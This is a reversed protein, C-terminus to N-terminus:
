CSRTGVFIVSRDGSYLSTDHLDNPPPVTSTIAGGGQLDAAAEITLSENRAWAEEVEAHDEALLDFVRHTPEGHPVPEDRQDIFDIKGSSTELHDSTGSPPGPM